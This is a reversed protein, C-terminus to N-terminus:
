SYGQYLSLFLENVLNDMDILYQSLIFVYYVYRNCILSLPVKHSLQESIPVIKMFYKWEFACSSGCVIELM